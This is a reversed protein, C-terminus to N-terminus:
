SAAGIVKRLAEIVYGDEGPLVTRPDLLLRGHEVRAIVPPDHKRLLRAAESPHPHALGLVRTPRTEAPLTGGGIPSEAVVVEGAGLADRWARARVDLEDVDAAIMQWVPVAEVAEGVVNHRLTAALGAIAAKDLRLVRMLPHRRLPDVAESKGVILGAQPGGLLKDGSFLVLDAGADVSDQPRPEYRLGFQRTDLLCGSGLDDILLAGAEDAVGRLEALSPEETFGVIRFNSSHVRLIAATDQSVADAYDQARTRNTTGVEVLRAGSQRMVDPIRFGGGIEVAQGRSVIVERGACFANLAFYLAAANNNVAIGAQAGSVACLLSELHGARSGRAGSELDFELNSYGSAAQTMAREAAQSVPARGLNTHIVVGTANIVPRLSPQVLPRLSQAALRALEAPDTPAARDAALAGRANAIAGRVADTVDGRSLQDLMEMLAPEALVRDVGPLARLKATHETAEHASHTMRLDLLFNTPFVASIRKSRDFSWDGTRGARMKM